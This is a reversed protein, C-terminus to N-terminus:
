DQNQCIIIYINFLIHISKIYFRYLKVADAGRLEAGRLEAGRLEAVRPGAVRPGAGRLEVADGGQSSNRM